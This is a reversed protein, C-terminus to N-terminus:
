VHSDQPTAVIVADIDARALLERWDKGALCGPSFSAVDRARSLDVDVSHVLKAGALHEARGRGVAGCGIIGINL